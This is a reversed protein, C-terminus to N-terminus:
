AGQLEPGTPIDAGPGGPIDSGGEVPDDHPHYVSEGAGSDKGGVDRLSPQAMEPDDIGTAGPRETGLTDKIRQDM